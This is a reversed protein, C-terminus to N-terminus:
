LKPAPADANNLVQCQMVFTALPQDRENLVLGELAGSQRDIAIRIQNLRKLDPHLVLVTNYFWGPLALVQTGQAALRYTMSYLTPSDVYHLREGVPLVNSRQILATRNNLRLAFDAHAPVPKDPTALEGSCRLYRSFEQAHAPQVAGLLLATCGVAVAAVAAVAVPRM